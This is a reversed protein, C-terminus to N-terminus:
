RDVCRTYSSHVRMTNLTANILSLKNHFGIIENYKKNQFM